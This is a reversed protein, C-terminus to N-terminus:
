QLIEEIKKELAENSLPAPAKNAEQTPRPSIPRSKPKLTPINQTKLFAPTIILFRVVESSTKLNRDLAPLEEPTMEFHFYGFNANAEKNIKYALALNRVPSEFSVEGGHQRILTAIKQASSEDKVLFSIEYSKKESPEKEM